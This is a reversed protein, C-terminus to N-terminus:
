PTPALRMSPEIPSTKRVVDTFLCTGCGPCCFVRVTMEDVRGFRNLPSFHPMPEELLLCGLRPDQDGPALGRRCRLCGIVPGATTQRIALAPGVQLTPPGDFPLPQPPESTWAIGHQIRAERQAQRARATAAEDVADGNSVVGYLSRADEPTVLGRRVDRLVFAPDRELPDGYGGGGTCFNVWADGPALTSAEKAEMVDLAAYGTEEWDTPVRGGRLLTLADTGRLVLNRQLCGPYGGFAGKGEM